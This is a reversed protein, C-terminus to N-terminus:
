AAIQLAPTQQEPAYVNAADTYLSSRGARVAHVRYQIFVGPTRGLDVYKSKTVSAVFVWPGETGLRTEIIFSTGPKNGARNWKLNIQAQRGVSAVLDVPADPIVPPAPTPGPVTIQLENKLLDTVGPHKQVIMALERAMALTEAMAQDRMATLGKAVNRASQANGCLVSLDTYLDNLATVQGATLGTQALNANAVSIFNQLWQLILAVTYPIYDRHTPTM